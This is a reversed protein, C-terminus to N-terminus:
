GAGSRAPVLGLWILSGLSVCLFVIADKRM